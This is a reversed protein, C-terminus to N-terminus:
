YGVEEKVGDIQEQKVKRKKSWRGNLVRCLRIARTVSSYAPLKGTAISQIWNNFSTEETVGQTAYYTTLIKTNSTEPINYGMEELRDIHVAIKDKLTSM